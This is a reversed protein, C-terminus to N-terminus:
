EININKLIINILQKIISNDDVVDNWKNHWHYCFADKFFNDFNYEKDTYKFINNYGINFSNQIWDGDFWSCPLVLMDLPLDYTLEALKFSFGNNLKIIYQINQEMKTSKPKLSIYIAGNPYNENSWQYVCMEDEYNRFIPDFSRLFFCDLDFWCGGYNYLLLKRILNSYGVSNEFKYNNIFDTKNMEDYLNFIKIECYKSIEKNYDNSVNDEDIWLIIKHQRNYVNFYYCSLISYM